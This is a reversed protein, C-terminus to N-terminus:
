SCFLSLEKKKQKKQQSKRFYVFVVDKAQYDARRHKCAFNRLFKISQLFSFFGLGRKINM